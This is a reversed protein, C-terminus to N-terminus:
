ARPHAKKYADKLKEITNHTYVQTAALSAHGLLEKVSHIDAGNNLLHTAFSHRLIHPSRKEITTLRNLAEHVLDYLKKQYLPKGNQTVLLYPHDINGMEKKKKDMYASILELLEKSVPLVREKNGKGLVKITLAFFDVQTEKLHLLEASRMGTQYLINLAVQQTLGDWGKKFIFGGPDKGAEQGVAQKIEEEKVFMPLRKATRPTVIHAMPSSSITGQKLLFKFFSKLTSIKRQISRADYDHEKLGALWSRIFAPRIEGISPNDFQQQLFTFFQQLDNEYADVTHSSFRKEFKLYGTFAALLETSHHM